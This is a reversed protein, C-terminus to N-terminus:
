TKWFFLLHVKRDHTCCMRGMEVEKVFPLFYLAHLEGIHISRWRGKVEEGELGVVDRFM